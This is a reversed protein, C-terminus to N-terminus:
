GGTSTAVMAPDAMAAAVATVLGTVLDMVAM